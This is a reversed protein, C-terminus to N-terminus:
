VAAGLMRALYVVQGLREACEVSNYAILELTSGPRDGVMAHDYLCAQPLRGLVEDGKEFAGAILQVLEPGSRRANADLTAAPAEGAIQVGFRQSVAACIEAMLSAITKSRDDPRWNLDDDKMGQVVATLRKGTEALLQRQHDIYLKAIGVM